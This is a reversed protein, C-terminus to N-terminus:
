RTPSQEVSLTLHDIGIQDGAGGDADGIIVTATVSIDGASADWISIGIPNAADFAPAQDFVQYAPNVNFVPSPNGAADQIELELNGAFSSDFDVGLGLTLKYPIDSQRLTITAGSLPVDGSLVHSKEWVVVDGAVSSNVHTDRGFVANNLIDGAGPNYPYYPDLEIIEAVGVFQNGGHATFIELEQNTADLGLEVIASITEDTIQSFHIVGPTGNGFSHPSVTAAAVDIAVGSTNGNSDNVRFVFNGTSTSRRALQVYVYQAENIPGAVPLQYRSASGTRFDELIVTPLGNFTGALPERADNVDWESLQNFIESNGSTAVVEAQKAFLQLDYFVM